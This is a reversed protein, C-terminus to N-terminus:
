NTTTFTLTTSNHDYDPMNTRLYDYTYGYLQGHTFPQLQEYRIYLFVYAIALHAPKIEEIEAKLSSENSPIGYVSTITSDSFSIAVDGNTYSDAVLKILSENVMGVGRRKSKIVSRREDYTQSVDTKIGLEKEYIVLAWTATDVFMQAALDDISTQRTDLQGNEADFIAQYIKSGRQFTQLRNIDPV